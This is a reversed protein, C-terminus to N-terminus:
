PYPKRKETTVAGLPVSAGTEKDAEPYGGWAAIILDKAKLRYEKGAEEHGLAMHLEYITFNLVIEREVTDDLNLIKGLRAAIAGVHIVARESARIVNAASGDELQTYLAEALRAKVEDATIASGTVRYSSSRSATSATERERSEVLDDFDTNPAM